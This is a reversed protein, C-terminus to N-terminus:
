EYQAATPMEGQKMKPLARFAPDDPAKENALTMASGMTTWNKVNVNKGADPVTDGNNNAKRKQNVNSDYLKMDKPGYNSKELSWQGNSAYKVLESEASGAENARKQLVEAADELAKILEDLNDM